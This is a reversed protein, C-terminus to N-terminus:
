GEAELATLLDWNARQFKKQVAPNMAYFRLDLGGGAFEYLESKLDVFAQIGTADIHNVNTLDIVVINLISSYSSPAKCSKTEDWLRETVSHNRQIRSCHAKVTGMIRTKIRYANPFLVSENLHFIQTDQPIEREISSPTAPTPYFTFFNEQAVVDVLSFTLPLLLYVLGYAVAAAISYEVSVFLTVWFSVISAMFDTFLTQSYKWFVETPLVIPWVTTIIIASLTAKPIWYFAGTLYYISILVCATTIVGSLPSKFRYGSESNVTTRSFGGTISMRSFPSNVFNILGIFVLEQSQDIAYNHRRGFSKVIALHELAAAIFVAVNRGALKKVLSLDPASPAKM